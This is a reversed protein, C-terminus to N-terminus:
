AVIIEDDNQILFSDDFYDYLRNLVQAQFCLKLVILSQPDANWEVQKPEPLM